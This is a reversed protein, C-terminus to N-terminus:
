RQLFFFFFFFGCVCSISQFAFPCLNRVTLIHRQGFDGAEDDDRRIDIQYPFYEEDHYVHFLDLLDEILIRHKQFHTFSQCKSTNVGREGEKKGREIRAKERREANKQALIARM